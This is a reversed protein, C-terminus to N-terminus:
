SLESLILNLKDTVIELLGKIETLNMGWLSDNELIAPVYGSIDLVSAKEFASIVDEGDRIEYTETIGSKIRKGCYKGNTDRSGRYYALLAALSFALKEPVTGNMKVLDLMTPLCRTKWKSVSNLAIASLEHRIYPNKFREIVSDAFGDLEKKDLNITPKAEKEFFERIFAETKPDSLAEGVTDYGKLYAYLVMSTHAGNLLRVKRKKFPKVDKTFLVPLGVKDLPFDESINKEPQIVWSGFAEGTVLLEDKYGFEEWLKEADNKPYGSIIRDVLTSCFVCAEDVWKLFKDDLKWNGAMKKVCDKLVGGNDDILEVPLLIIGKEPNGNFIRFREFLFKTIKGPFSKPPEYEYRDTPDYVIGAETTNSIIFKVTEDGALSMLYSYDSYCSKVASVCSIIRKRIEQGSRLLTTYFCDQKEFAESPKGDRPKFIIVEADFFGKENAIDIMEDVFGRLFNGEGFQIIKTRREQKRKVAEKIDKM